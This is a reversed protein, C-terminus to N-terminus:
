ELQGQGCISDMSTWLRRPSNIFLRDTKWAIWDCQPISFGWLINLIQEETLIWTESEGGGAATYKLCAQAAVAEDPLNWAKGILTLGNRYLQIMSDQEEPIDPLDGNEVAERRMAMLCQTEEEVRHILESPILNQKQITM